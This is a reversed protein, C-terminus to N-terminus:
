WSLRRKMNSKLESYLLQVKNVILWQIGIIMVNFFYKDRVKIMKVFQRLWYNPRRYFKFFLSTSISELEETSYDSTGREKGAPVNFEEEKVIGNNKAKTWLTSGFTYDLVWFSTIDLPLSAAFKYTQKFHKKTEHPAGIIFLGATYLGAKDAETIAYRNQAVTTDKNFFDLSKQVGSELGFTICRVGALKMLRFLEPDAADVRGQVAFILNLKRDIIGQLITKARRKDATFNDDVIGVIKFGDKAIQELELLVNEASRQRFKQYALAGHACFSCKKPCGRSTIITTINQSAKEGIISYGKNKRLLQRVPFHLSDLNKIYTYSEGEVVKGKKNRFFIGPLQNYDTKNFIADVINSITAEAESCVTIETGEIYRPHLILDPGGAIIPLSKNLNNLSNIIEESQSRNFSMISIGILDFRSSIETIKDESYVEANFDFAEVEYGDDILTRALYLIGLPPSITKESKSGEGENSGFTKTNCQPFIMAIRKGM